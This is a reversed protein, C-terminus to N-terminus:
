ISYTPPGDGLEHCSRATCASIEVASYARIVCEDELGPTTGGGYIVMTPDHCPAVLPRARM